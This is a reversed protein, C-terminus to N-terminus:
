AVVGINKTSISECPDLLRYSYGIWLRFILTAYAKVYFVPLCGFVIMQWNYM